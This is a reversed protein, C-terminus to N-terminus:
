LLETVLLLAYGAIPTVIVLTLLRWGFHKLEPVLSEM